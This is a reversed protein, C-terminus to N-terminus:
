IFNEGENFLEVIYERNAISTPLLIIYKKLDYM